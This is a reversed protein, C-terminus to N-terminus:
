QVSYSARLCQQSLRALTGYRSSRSQDLVTCYSSPAQYRNAIFSIRQSLSIKGLVTIVINLESLDLSPM